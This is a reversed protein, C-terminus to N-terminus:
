ADDTSPLEFLEVVLHGLDHRRIPIGLRQWISMEHTWGPAYAGPVASWRAGLPLEPASCLNEAAAETPPREDDEADSTSTQDAPTRAFVEVLVKVDVTVGHSYPLVEGARAHVARWRGRGPKEGPWGLLADSRRSLYPELAVRRREPDDEDCSLYDLAFCEALQRAEDIGVPRLAAVPRDVTTRAARTDDAARGSPLFLGQEDQEHAVWRGAPLPSPAMVSAPSVTEAPRPGPRDRSPRGFADHLYEGQPARVEEAAEHKLEAIPETSAPFYEDTAPAGPAYGATSGGGREHGPVQDEARHLPDAGGYTEDLESVPPTPVNGPPRAAVQARRPRPSSGNTGWWPPPSPPTARTRRGIPM